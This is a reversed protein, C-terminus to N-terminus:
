HKTVKFYIIMITLFKIIKDEHGALLGVLNDIPKTASHIDRLTQLKSASLHFESTWPEIGSEPL